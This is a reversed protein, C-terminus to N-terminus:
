RLIERIEEIIRLVRGYHETFGRPNMQGEFDMASIEYELEGCLDRLQRRLPLVVPLTNQVERFRELVRRLHGTLRESALYYDIDGRYEALKERATRMAAGTRDTLLGYNSPDNQLDGSIQIDELPLALPSDQLPFTGNLWVVNIKEPAERQFRAIARKLEKGVWVSEAASRSLMLAFQGAHKIAHEIIWAYNTGAPIDYPAMWCPHGSRRLHMRIESVIRFDRSSYSIFTYANDQFGNQRLLEWGMEYRGYAASNRDPMIMEYYKEDIIQKARVPDDTDKGVNITTRIFETITRGNRVIDDLNYSAFDDLLALSGEHLNFLLLECEGSYRWGIRNANEIERFSEVFASDSFLVKGYGPIDFKDGPRLLASFGRLLGTGTNEFGPMFYHCEEGSDLHFMNLNKLLADGARGPERPNVLIVYYWFQRYRSLYVQKLESISRIANM